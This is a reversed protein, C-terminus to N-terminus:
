SKPASDDTAGAKERAKARDFILIKVLGCVIVLVIIVLVVILINILLTTLFIIIQTQFYWGTFCLAALSCIWLRWKSSKAQHGSVGAGSPGYDVEPVSSARLKSKEEARYDQLGCEEEICSKATEIDVKFWEQGPKGRRFPEFTLHVAKEARGCDKTECQWFCKFEAPIGTSAGKNLEEARVAGSRRSCGIKIWKKKFASNRIIYVVGPVGDNQNFNRSKRKRGM